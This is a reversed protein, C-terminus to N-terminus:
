CIIDITNIKVQIRLNRNQQQQRKTYKQKCKFHM